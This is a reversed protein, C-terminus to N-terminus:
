MVVVKLAFKSNDEDFVCLPLLYSAEDMKLM